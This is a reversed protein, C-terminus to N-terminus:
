KGEMQGDHVRDETSLCVLVTSFQAPMAKKLGQTTVQGAKAKTIVITDRIAIKFVEPILLLNLTLRHYVPFISCPSPLSSPCLCHEQIFTNLHKLFNITGFDQAISDVSVQPLAPQKAIHYTMTTQWQPNMTINVMDSDSNDDENKSDSSAGDEQSALLSDSTTVLQLYWQCSYHHSQSHPHHARPLNVTRSCPSNENKYVNINFNIRQGCIQGKADMALVWVGTWVGSRWWTSQWWCDVVAEALLAEWCADLIAEVGVGGWRLAGADLSPLSSGWPWLWTWPEQFICSWNGEIEKFFDADAM